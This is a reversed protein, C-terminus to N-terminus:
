DLADPVVAAITSIVGTATWDRTTFLASTDLIITSLAIIKRRTMPEKERGVVHDSIDSITQKVFGRVYGERINGRRARLIELAPLAEGVLDLLLHAVRPHLEAVGVLRKEMEVFHELSMPKVPSRRMGGNLYWGDQGSNFGARHLFERWVYGSSIRSHGRRSRWSLYIERLRDNNQHNNNAIGEAFYSGELFLKSNIFEELLELLRRAENPSLTIADRPTNSSYGDNSALILQGLLVLVERDSKSLAM